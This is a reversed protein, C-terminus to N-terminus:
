LTDSLLQEPQEQLPAPQRSLRLYLTACTLDYYPAVYFIELIGCTMLGGIHWLIFSLDLVFSKWKEGNMLDTSRKLVEKYPMDPYEALIYPVMRYQYQKYIGPIIFLLSWLFIRIDSHFMTKVVNKYSHDFGYTIEKVKAKDENSKIMFRSVGVKFPLILLVNLIYLFVLLILAIIIFITIGVMRAKEPVIVSNKSMETHDSPNQMEVAVTGTEAAEETRMEASESVSTVASSATSVNNNNNGGAATAFGSCFLLSLFSVLVIKWYNRQLAEKAQEKLEKRTWMM